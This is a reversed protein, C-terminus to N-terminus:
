IEEKSNKIRLLINYKWINSPKFQVNLVNIDIEVKLITGFISLLKRVTKGIISKIILMKCSVKHYTLCKPLNHQIKARFKISDVKVDFLRTIKHLNVQQM